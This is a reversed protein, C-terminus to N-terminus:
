KIIKLLKRKSIHEFFKQIFYNSKLNKLKNNSNISKLQEREESKNLINKSQM